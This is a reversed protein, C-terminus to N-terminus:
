CRSTGSNEAILCIIIMQHCMQNTYSHYAIYNKQLIQGLLLTYLNFLLPGPISGQPVGCTM